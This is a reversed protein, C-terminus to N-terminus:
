KSNALIYRLCADRGGKNVKGENMKEWARELHDSVLTPSTSFGAPKRKHETWPVSYLMEPFDYVGYNCKGATEMPSMRYTVCCGKALFNERNLSIKDHQMTSVMPAALSSNEEFANEAVILSDVNCHTQPFRYRETEYLSVYTGMLCYECLDNEMGVIIDFFDRKETSHSVRQDMEVIRNRMNSLSDSWFHIPFFQPIRLHGNNYFKDIKLLERIGGPYAPPATDCALDHILLRGKSDIVNEHVPLTHWYTDGDAIALVKPLVTKYKKAAKVAALDLVTKVYLMECYGIDRGFCGAKYKDQNFDRKLDTETVLDIHMFDNAFSPPIHRLLSDLEDDQSSDWVYLIKQYLEKNHFMEYSKMFLDTEPERKKLHHYVVIWAFEPENSPDVLKAQTQPRPATTYSGYIGFLMGVQLVQLVMLVGFAMSKNIVM